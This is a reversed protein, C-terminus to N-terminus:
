LYCVGRKDEKIMDEVKQKKAKNRVRKPKEVLPEEKEKSEDSSHVSLSKEQEEQVSAISKNDESESM